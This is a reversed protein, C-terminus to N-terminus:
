FYGFLYTVPGPNYCIYASTCYKVRSRVPSMAWLQPYGDVRGVRIIQRFEVQPAVGPSVFVVGFFFRFSSTTM